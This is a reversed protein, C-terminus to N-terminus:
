NMSKPNSVPVQTQMDPDLVNRNSISAWEECQLTFAKEEELWKQERMEEKRKEEQLLYEKKMQEILQVDPESLDIELSKEWEEWELALREEKKKRRKERIEEKRRERELLAAKRCQEILRQHSQNDSDQELEETRARKEQHVQEGLQHCLTWHEM